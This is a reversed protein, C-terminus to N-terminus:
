RPHATMFGLRMGSSLVKSFSDFRRGRRRPADTLDSSSPVSVCRVVRGQEGNVEPELAFYSRAREREPGYYLFAYADDELVLFNYKKALKLRGVSLYYPM